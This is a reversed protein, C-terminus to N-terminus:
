RILSVTDGEVKVLYSDPYKKRIEQFREKVVSLDTDAGIIYKYIKTGKVVVPEYGLFEPAGPEIRRGVAFIQVGYLTERVADEGEAEGAAEAVPEVTKGATKEGAKPAAVPASSEVSVSKDYAAKYEVFAQYLCEAIRDRNEEDRLVALDSPNSIFGLEVLVSPMSTKWLVYFPDQSIGRDAKIPGNHLHKKVTGAFNLSQELYANQMLQMFINSEPDEPNFGEYKTSYDDELLIVSNERKCVNMNYEYLDTNKKSSQGMCHVSFGNASTKPAANIHLSIFLNAGAKNAKEARDNLSIFEQGRTVIVNVDPCGERIKRSLRASIDLVISKEYTKKDASVAGPDKGGHGPDIVVTKLGLDDKAAMSAGCLVLCLIICITRKM